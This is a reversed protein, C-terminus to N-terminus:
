GETYFDYGKSRLHHIIPVYHGDAIIIHEVLTKNFHKMLSYIKQTLVVDSDSPTVDGGPHSHVIIFSVANYRFLISGLKEMDVSVDCGNGKALTEHGLLRMRADMMMVSIEEETDRLHSYVCYEAVTEMGDFVVSPTFKDIQYRKGAEPILKLFTATNEKVGDMRMLDTIDADMVSSISGFQNILRHALLNVDQRPISYTLLLELVEHPAFDELGNNLFRDRIRKRHQSHIDDM